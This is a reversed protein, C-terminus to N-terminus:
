KSIRSMLWQLVGLDSIKSRIVIDFIKRFVDEQVDDHCYGVAITDAREDPKIM